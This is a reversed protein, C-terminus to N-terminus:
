MFLKTKGLSFISFRVICFAGSPTCIFHSKQLFLIKALLSFNTTAAFNPIVIKREKKIMNVKQLDLSGFPIENGGSWETTWFVAPAMNMISDECNIPLVKGFM